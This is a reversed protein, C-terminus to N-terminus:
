SVFACCMFFTSHLSGHLFSYNIKLLVQTLNAVFVIDMKQLYSHELKIILKMKLFLFQLVDVFAPRIVYSCTYIHIYLVMYVCMCIYANM